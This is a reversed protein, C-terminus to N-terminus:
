IHLQPVGMGETNTNIYYEKRDNIKILELHNKECNNLKVILIVVDIMM